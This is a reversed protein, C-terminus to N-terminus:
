SVAHVAKLIQDAVVQPQSMMIVHSGPVEVIDAHARQAMSRVIDSGAAKDGSAVVAWVPLKKWAPPGSAETFAAEAIPRQTAAMVASQEASLDGAFTDHFLTPNIAFEVATESGHGTPYQLPILATNLVSDKSTSEVQGLIEGEDPAFGSVYVLSVVNDATTAANTIV